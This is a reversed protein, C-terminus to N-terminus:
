GELYIRLNTVTMTNGASSTGFQWTANVANSATTDVTSTATVVYAVANFPGYSSGGWYTWILQGIGTGGAGTTRVTYVLEMRFPYNASLGAGALATTDLVTNAGIKLRIRITNAVTNGVYGEVVVRITSGAVLQNAALTASGAGAGLLTTEATTSAFTVTATQRFICAVQDTLAYAVVTTNKGTISSWAPTVTSESISTIIGQANTTVVSAKTASGFTTSATPGFSPLDALVLARFTPAAAAGTTPGAWVRNATQTALTMTLTGAGTVAASYTFIAPGSLAVSTVTGLAPSPLTVSTDTVVKREIIYAPASGGEIKFTYRGDPLSIAWRGYSDAQFPNAKATPSTNDGSAEYVTALPTTPYSASDYVTITANPICNGNPDQATYEPGIRQM